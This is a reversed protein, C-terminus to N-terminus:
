SESRRPPVVQGRARRPRPPPPARPGGGRPPPPPPPRGRPAGGRPAPPCPRARARTGMGQVLPSSPSRGTHDRSPDAILVIERATADPCPRARARTGM